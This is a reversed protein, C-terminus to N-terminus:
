KVDDIYKLAFTLNKPLCPLEEFLDHIIEDEFDKVLKDSPNQCDLIYEWNVKDHFERIFEESLKQFESILNWNLKDSHERMFDESLSVYHSIENWNIKKSLLIDTEKLDKYKEYFTRDRNKIQMNVCIMCKHSCSKKHSM